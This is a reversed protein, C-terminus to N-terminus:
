ASLGFEIDLLIREVTQVGEESEAMQSPTKGGLLPHPKQMFEGAARAGLVYIALGWLREATENIALIASAKSTPTNADSTSFVAIIKSGTWVGEGSATVWMHPDIGISKLESELANRKSM